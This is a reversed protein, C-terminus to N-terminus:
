RPVSRRAGSGTAAEVPPDAGTAVVERDDGGDSPGEAERRRWLVVLGIVGLLTLVWGAVDVPTAGYRLTVHRSTPLVVMQNPTVRWVGRAGSVRWNPFYSAKVLVPSGVRDVDFSISDDDARIDSIVAPEVPRRPPAPDAGRVRRWEEPGSAALPVEWRSSDQFWAVAADLWGPGGKAVGTMVVPEYSLPAVIDAGEVLFAEWTVQWQYADVTVTFPGATALSRLGPVTRAQERAADTFAVYYRVGLLRLHEVGTAVDLSRYPLESQFQAPDQSLESETLMQYPVTASSESYLGNLSAICGDTFHPLLMLGFSTGFRDLEEGYEWSARGCGHARGVARMMEVVDRYEPYSTGGEYGAFTVEVAKPVISRDELPVWVVLLAVAFSAVPTVLGAIDGRRRAAASWRGVLSPVEAVATAALLYLSLRWFPLFRINSLRTPPAALFVALSVVALGALFLGPRRRQRVSVVVAVVALGIVWVAHEPLLDKGLGVKGAGLDTTYGIRLLFPVTWFAALLAAVAGVPLVFRVLRQRDLRMVTLVVLGMLAFFVTLVHCLATLALLGAALARHRGTALGRAYVGLFVLAVSLGISYSYEGNLTSLVNGGFITNSREFLFPLTAAALCPPGPLPMDVLRGFAWAAAPLTVLGLITVLNFAVNYPFVLDLLVVLLSPLPFYFTLWPFGAYWDPTWGTVRGHPLLHDRLYAPGWVQAGMDGGTATNGAFILDPRLQWFVFACAGGVISATLLRRPSEGRLM